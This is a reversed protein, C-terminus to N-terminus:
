RAEGISAFLQWRDPVGRLDHDGRDDFALNSGVVLDTVTRSVLVESAQALRNIRAAIHVAIGGVDDGRVEIEGTHIGVRVEIGLTRVADVIARGCRVGRATGDFVALAGDGTNKVVRGNSRGVEAGLVEDHRDLLAKWRRDGLEAARETSGVIDTLMVTSLVRDPESPQSTGTVFTSIEDLLLDADGAWWIMDEGPVEVYTAGSIREAISRGHEPGLFRNGARHLVLTPVAIAPLVGRIDVGWIMRNLNAAVAPAAQRRRWRTVISLLRPDSSLSPAIMEIGQGEAWMDPLQAIVPGLVDELDFAQSDFDIRRASTNVPGARSM